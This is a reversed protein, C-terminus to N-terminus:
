HVPEPSSARGRVPSLEAVLRELSRRPLRVRMVWGGSDNPTEDVVADLEFLRARLRGESPAVEVALPEPPVGLMRGTAELLGEVNAGTRASVAVRMQEDGAAPAPVLAPLDTKNYVEIQPVDGAGIEALVENVVAAREEREPDSADIVHLLIDADRAESLTAKFAEVLEHPLRTVFGVTDAVVVDGVGPVAVRRLLPDLTAFLRDAAFAGEGTLRNFLTTKGANTYGVLAAVPTSNRRRNARGQARQRGVRELRHTLQEIRKGLLRRDTELQTEGPGRLGIGGKQRELHTWGRVLRTALHRLQAREVELRGEFSRARQAFIDLILGTRDLVRAQLARELNREQGPSLAEDVLVLKAGSDALCARVEDVKGSGLFYRPDPERRPNAISAAIGAGAARALSEFEGHAPANRASAAGHQVLVAREAASSM